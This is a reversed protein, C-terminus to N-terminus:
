FFTLKTQRSFKFCRIDILVIKFYVLVIKDLNYLLQLFSAVRYLLRKSWQNRSQAFFGIGAAFIGRILGLGIVTSLKFACQFM